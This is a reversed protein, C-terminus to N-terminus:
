SELSERLMGMEVGPHQLEFEPAYALGRSGHPMDRSALVKEALEQHM